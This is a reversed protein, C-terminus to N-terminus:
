SLEKQQALLYWTELKDLRIIEIARMDGSPRSHCVQVGAAFSGRRMCKRMAISRGKSTKLLSGSFEVALFPQTMLRRM